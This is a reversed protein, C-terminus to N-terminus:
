AAAGRWEDDLMAYLFCDKWVGHIKLSSKQFGEQRMGLKELVRLSAPNEPLCTAWIRHLKLEEFGFRLIQRAAETAAGHGWLQPRLLYWLEGQESATISCIGCLGILEGTNPDCIARTHAVSSGDIVEGILEALLTESQERTSSLPLSMCRVVNMSSLLEHVADVDARNLKRLEVARDYAQSKCV